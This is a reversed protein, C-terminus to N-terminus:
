ASNLSVTAGPTNIADGDSIPIYPEGRYHLKWEPVGHHFKCGNDGEKWKTCDPRIKYTDGVEIPFLTEFSLSISGSATEVENSRGANKGTLWRVMGPVNASSAGGGGFTRNSEAGVSSVGYPGAFLAEADKGCPFRQEVVGGGTGFPQSGFIARCTISDKEVIPTKLLKALSTLENWFTIGNQVRVQGLQGHDLDVRGMTLDQYNVWYLSYWAFDYVGANLAVENIGMDGEPILHQIESNNVSMDSLSVMAAPIMGIPARYVVEGDGDDYIVDRDLLTCGVSPYAPNRPDIRMLYTMTTTGTDLHAQLLAPVPRTM